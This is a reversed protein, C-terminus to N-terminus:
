HVIKPFYAKKKILVIASCCMFATLALSFLTGNDNNVIIGLILLHTMIAGSMILIGGIAGYFSTRPFLLLFSVLLEVIGLGIRSYPELGVRTFIYVSDPHATFKFFLTQLFIISAVIALSREIFYLAKRNM